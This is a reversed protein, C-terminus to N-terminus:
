SQSMTVYFSKSVVQERKFGSPSHNRLSRCRTVLLGDPSACPEQSVEYFPRCFISLQWGGPKRSLKQTYRAPSNEMSPIKRTSKIGSQPRFQSRESTHISRHAPKDPQYQSCGHAYAGPEKVSSEEFAKM